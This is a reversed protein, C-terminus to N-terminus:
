AAKRAKGKAKGARKAAPKVKAANRELAAWRTAACRHVAENQEKGKLDHAKFYHALYKKVEADSMRTRKTEAKKAM